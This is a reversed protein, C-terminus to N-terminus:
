SKNTKLERHLKLQSRKVSLLEDTLDSTKCRLVTAIYWPKLEKRYKDNFKKILENNNIKYTCSNIRRKKNTCKRCFFHQINNNNNNYTKKKCCKCYSFGFHERLLSEISKSGKYDGRNLMVVIRNKIKKSKIELKRFAKIGSRNFYYNSYVIGDERISYKKNTGEIFKTKMQNNILIM